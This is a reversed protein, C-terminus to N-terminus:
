RPIEFTPIGSSYPAIDYQQFYFVIFHSTLYFQEPNFTNLVLQCPNEFYQNTGNQTQEDIQHVIDKLVMLLSYCDNSFVSTFPFQSGQTLNWNQSSRVTSGHAGGTFTYQDAYLSIIPDNEYTITYQYILEYIMIPYHNQVNYDYQQKAQQFLEKEAYLKLELAKLRNYRNFQEIGYHYTNTLIRPYEIRYTVIVVGQYLLEKELITKEIEFM